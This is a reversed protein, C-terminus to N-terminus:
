NCCDPCNLGTPNREGSGSIVNGVPSIILELPVTPTVKILPLLTDIMDAFTPLADGSALAIRSLALASPKSDKLLFSSFRILFCVPNSIDLAIFSVFGNRGNVLNALVLAIAEVIEVIGELFGITGGDMLGVKNDAGDSGTDDGITESGAGELSVNDGSIEAGEAGENDTGENLGGGFILGGTLGGALSGELSGVGERSM